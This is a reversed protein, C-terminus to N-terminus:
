TECVNPTVSTNCTLSNACHPPSGLLFSTSASCVAGKTAYCVNKTTPSSQDGACIYVSGPNLAGFYQQCDEDHNCGYSAAYISSYDGIAVCKNIAVACTISPSAGPDCQIFGGTLTEPTGDCPGDENSMCQYPSTTGCSYLTSPPVPPTAFQGYANQCSTDDNNSPDTCGPVDTSVCYSQLSPFKYCTMGTPCQDPITSSPDLECPFYCAGAYCVTGPLDKCDLNGTCHTVSCLNDTARDTECFLSNECSTASTPSITDCVGNLGVSNAQPVCNSVVGPGGGTADCTNFESLPCNTALVGPAGCPTSSRTSCVGSDCFFLETGNKAECDEDAVCTTGGSCYGNPGSCSTGIPCGATTGIPANCKTLCASNNYCTTNPITCPNNPSFCDLLQCRGDLGQISSCTLGPQCPVYLLNKSADACVGDVGLPGTCYYDNTETYTKPTGLTGDRNGNNVCTQGYPCTGPTAGTCTGPNGSDEAMYIVKSSYDFTIQRDELMPNGFYWAPGSEFEDSNIDYGVIGFRCVNTFGTTTSQKFYRYVQLPVVNLVPPNPSPDKVLSFYLNKFKGVTFSQACINVPANYNYLGSIQNQSINGLQDIGFIISVLARFAQVPAIIYPTGSAFVAFGNWNFVTNSSSTPTPGYTVNTMQVGWFGRNSMWVNFSYSPSTAYGDTGGSAPGITLWSTGLLSYRDSTTSTGVFGIPSITMQIANSLFGSNPFIQSAFTYTTTNSPAFGLGFMGLPFHTASFTSNSLYAGVLTQLSNIPFPTTNATAATNEVPPTITPCSYSTQQVPGTINYVAFYPVSRGIFSSSNVISSTSALAFVDATETSVSFVGAITSGPATAPCTVYLNEYPDLNLAM